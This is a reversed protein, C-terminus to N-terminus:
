YCKRRLAGLTFDERKQAGIAGALGGGDFHQGRQELGGAADDLDIPEVRLALLVFHPAAKADDKLVRTEVHSSVASSFM